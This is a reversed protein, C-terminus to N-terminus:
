VTLCPKFAHEIRKEASTHHYRRARSKQQFYFDQNMGARSIVNVFFRPFRRTVSTEDPYGTVYCFRSNGRKVGDHPVIGSLPTLRRAIGSHHAKERRTYDLRASSNRVLQRYVRTFVNYRAGYERFHFFLGLKNGNRIRCLYRRNKANQRIYESSFKGYKM